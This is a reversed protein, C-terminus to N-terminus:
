TLYLVQAADSLTKQQAIETIYRLQEMRMINGGMTLKRDVVIGSITEKKLALDNEAPLTWRCQDICFYLRSLAM